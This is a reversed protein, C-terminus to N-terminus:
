VIAGNNSTGSRYSSHTADSNNCHQSCMHLSGTGGLRTVFAVVARVQPMARRRGVRVRERM